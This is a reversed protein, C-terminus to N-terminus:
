GGGGVQDDGRGVELISEIFETPRFLEGSEHAKGWAEKAPVLPRITTGGREYEVAKWHSVAGRTTALAVRERGETEADPDVVNELLGLRGHAGDDFAVETRGGRTAEDGVYVIDGEEIIPAEARLDLSHETPKEGGMTDGEVDGFAIVESVRVRFEARSGMEERDLEM